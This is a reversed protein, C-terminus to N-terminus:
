KNEKKKVFQETSVCAVAVTLELISQFSETQDPWTM